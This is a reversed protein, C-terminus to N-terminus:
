RLYRGLRIDVNAKFSFCYLRKLTTATITNDFRIEDYAIYRGVRSINDLSSSRLEYLDFTLSSSKLDDYM